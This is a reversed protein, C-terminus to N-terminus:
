KYVHVYHTSKVYAITGGGEMCHFPLRIESKFLFINENLIRVFHRGIILEIIAVSIDVHTVKTLPM